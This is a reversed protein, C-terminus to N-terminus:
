NDHMDEMFHTSRYIQIFQCLQMLGPLQDVM